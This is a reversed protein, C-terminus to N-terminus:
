EIILEQIYESSVGELIKTLYEEDRTNKYYFIYQIPNNARLVRGFRQIFSREIGDLQVIIGLDINNLNQGEQLMGVAFLSNRGGGNFEDIIQLSNKKKSHIANNGGLLEAQDISTCFCIFRKDEVDKLFQTVYKTKLEGLFRKRQSGIQLWKNKSPLTRSNFYVKKYYEFKKTYYQYVEWETAMITLTVNPYRKRNKLYTWRDKYTSVYKVRSHKKGWEEIIKQNRITYDLKLPILVVEPIPLLKWDIAQQLTIKFTEVNIKFTSSLFSKLSEGITASLLLLKNFQINSIIDLRIESGIHHAEDLIIVDYQCNVHNKLSAYTVITIKEWLEQHKWKIMENKWNDHHALEAIVILVKLDSKKGSSVWQKLIIDLAIKSKGVGTAFELALIKNDIALSLARKEIELRTM